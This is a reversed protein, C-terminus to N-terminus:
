SEYPLARIGYQLKLIGDIIIVIALITGFFM